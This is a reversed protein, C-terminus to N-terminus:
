APLLGVSRSGLFSRAIAKEFSWADLALKQLIQLLIVRLLWKAERWKIRGM